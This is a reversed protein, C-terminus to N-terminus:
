VYFCLYVCICLYVCKCICVCSGVYVNVCVDLFVEKLNLSIKGGMECKFFLKPRQKLWAVKFGMQVWRLLNGTFRRAFLIKCLHTFIPNFNITDIFFFQLRYNKRGNPSIIVNSELFSISDLLAVLIIALEEWAGLKGGVSHLNKLWFLTYFSCM